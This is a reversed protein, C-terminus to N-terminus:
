FHLWIDFGHRQEKQGWSQTQFAYDFRLRPGAYGLGATYYGARHLGDEKVGLRLKFDYALTNEVGFLAVGLNKSNMQLQYLYDARLQFAGSIEYTMALAGQRYNEIPTSYERSDGRLNYFVLGLGLRPIGYYMLGLDGDMFNEHPLVGMESKLYHLAIGVSLGEGLHQALGVHFFQQTLKLDRSTRRLYNFSGPMVVGPSGDTLGFGWTQQDTNSGQSSRVIANQFQASGYYKQLFGLGAPNLLSTETADVSARGAGGLGASIPGNFYQAQAWIPTVNLCLILLLISM